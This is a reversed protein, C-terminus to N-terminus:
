FSNEVRSFDLDHFDYSFDTLPSIAKMTFHNANGKEDVDFFIHSDAGFSRENCKVVFNRNKYFFVEGSLRPSRKSSFYLKGKKESLIVEGFWNDKFTGTFKKLDIKTKDKLNKNVTAWIEDTIKDADNEKERRDASLAAVHDPNKKAV